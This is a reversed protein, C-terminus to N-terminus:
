HLLYQIKITFNGNINREPLPNTSNVLQKINREFYNTPYFNLNTFENNDLFYQLKHHYKYENQCFM